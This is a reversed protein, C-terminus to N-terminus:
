SRQAEGLGSSGRVDGEGRGALVLREVGAVTRATQLIAALAVLGGGAGLM